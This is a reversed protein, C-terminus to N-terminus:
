NFYYRSAYISITKTLFLVVSWRRNRPSHGWLGCFTEDRFLSVSFDILFSRIKPFDSHWEHSRKYILIQTTYEYWWVRKRHFAEHHIILQRNGNNYFSYFCKKAVFLNNCALWVLRKMATRIRSHFLDTARFLVAYGLINYCMVLTLTWAIFNKIQLRLM